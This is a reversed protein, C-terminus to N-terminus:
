CIHMKINYLKLTMFGFIGNRIKWKTEHKKTNQIICDDQAGKGAAVAVGM